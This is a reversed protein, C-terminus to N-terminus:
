TQVAIGAPHGSGASEDSGHQVASVISAGLSPEHEEIYLAVQEDGPRRALPAVLFRFALAALVVYFGIRVGIVAAPVFRFQELLFASLLLLAFAGGLLILLGRLLVRLRYRTRVLRIVRHLRDRAASDMSDHSMTRGEVDM